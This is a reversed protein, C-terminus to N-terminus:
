FIPVLIKFISSSIVSFIFGRTALGGGFCGRCARKQYSQLLNFGNEWLIGINKLCVTSGESIVYCCFFVGLGGTDM